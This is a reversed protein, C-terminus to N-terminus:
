QACVKLGIDAGLQRTEAFPDAGQGGQTLLNPNQEIEDLDGEATDLFETVQGEIEDRAELERIGDIQSQIGPVVVESVYQEVEAQSPKSKGFFGREQSEVEADGETCIQDAQTIFEQESLAEGGDGNEDEDDDGCGAAILGTALLGALLLSAKKM